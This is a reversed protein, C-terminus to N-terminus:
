YAVRMGARGAVTGARDSTWTGEVAGFFSVQDHFRFDFNMGAFPGVVSNKGPAIFALNQGLLVTDVSTDGLRQLGLVGGQLSVKLLDRIGVVQTSSLTLELREEVDQITRRGVTLMQTSGSETYGDFFGAVYRIRAAPTLVFGNGIPMRVGYSAEPSIFWGNYSAVPTDLGSPSLNDAILRNTRTRASGGYLAFDAFQMAWEYRGYGGAFVYDTDAGQSLFDLNLRGFGGGLFAGLKLDPNVLREIGIAGGEALNTARV